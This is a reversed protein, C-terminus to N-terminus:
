LSAFALKLAGHWHHDYYTADTPTGSCVILRYIHEQNTQQLAELFSEYVDRSTKHLIELLTEAARCATNDAKCVNEHQTKTLTARTFMEDAVSNANLMEAVKKNTSM